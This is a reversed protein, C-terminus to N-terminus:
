GEGSSRAKGQQLVTRVLEPLHPINTQLLTVPLLPRPPHSPHSLADATHATHRWECQHTMVGELYGAAKLLTQDDYGSAPGSVGVDLVAWRCFTCLMLQLISECVACDQTEGLLPLLALSNHMVYVLLSPTCM